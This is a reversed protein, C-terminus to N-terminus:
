IGQKIGVYDEREKMIENYYDTHWSRNTNARSNCSNCVTILNWPSCEKKDYNIHHIFLRNSNSWCDPNQCEYNDREKISKKYEKDTWVDCYPECSIGGKWNPHSPGSNKIFFCTSGRYGQQWMNWTTSNIHGVSCICELKTHANVYKNSLLKYKEKEFESRIFETTLKINGDCSPCRRGSRWKNWNMHHKHGNDCVYDIKQRSNIYRKTLLIYGCDEFLKNIYEISPKGQGDCYPCRHGQKWWDFTISHRHGNSCIFLLKDKCSSYEKTLLLYNEKKFESNVYEYNFKATM